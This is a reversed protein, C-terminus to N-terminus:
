KQVEYHSQVMGDHYTRTEIHRLHIDKELSGFLTIGSGLLVPVRTIILEDILGAKLFSQITKGGDVYVHSAGKKILQEIVQQPSLAVVEMQRRPDEPLKLKRHSLVTVPKDGYPWEGLSIVKEFTAVGMVIADVSAIFQNYGYDEGGPDAEVGPLWDLSGDERAIFGDLSAAIFASVKM